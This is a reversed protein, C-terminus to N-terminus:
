SQGKAYSALMEKRKDYSAKVAARMNRQIAQETMTGAWAYAAAFIGRLTADDEALEIGEVWLPLCNEVRWASNQQEENDPLEVAIPKVRNPTPEATAAGADGKKAPEDAAAAQKPAPAAAQPKPAQPKAPQPPASKEQTAVHPTEFDGEDLVGETPIMFSMIVAYKLCGSMAKNTSKDASDMGQGFTTVTHKSGDEVAVIDFEGQVFVDSLFGGNKSLRECHEHKQFRPLIVLGHTVLLPSLANMCDDIGRFNFGQDKNRRDKGVGQTALDRMVANMAAYVKM